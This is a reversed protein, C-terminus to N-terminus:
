WVKSSSKSSLLIRKKLNKIIFTRTLGWQVLSNCKKDNLIKITIQINGLGFPNWLDREVAHPNFVPRFVISTLGWTAFIVIKFLKRVFRDSRALKSWEFNNKKPNNQVQKKVALFTNIKKRLIFLFDTVAPKKLTLHRLNQPVSM